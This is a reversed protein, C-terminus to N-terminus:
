EGKVLHHRFHNRIHDNFFRGKAFASRFAAYIEPPCKKTTTGNAVQWSGYRSSGPTRIM